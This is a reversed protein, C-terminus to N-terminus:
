RGPDDPVGAAQWGSIGVVRLVLVREFPHDRYQPYRAALSAALPQERGPAVDPEWRLDARVWWLRSWDDREWHEVLLAAHPDAELNRVRQLRLSHKPKVRDVPVGILEGHLAFVVPVVHPRGDPRSTCLVGHDSDALRARARDQDMRMTVQAYTVWSVISTLM